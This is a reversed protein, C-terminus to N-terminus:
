GESIFQKKKRRSIVQDVCMIDFGTKLLTHPSHKVAERRNGTVEVGTVVTM